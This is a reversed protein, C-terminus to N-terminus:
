LLTLEGEGIPVERGRTLQVLRILYSHNAVFGDDPSLRLRLAASASGRVDTQYLGFVQRAAIARKDHADFILCLVPGRVVAHAAVLMVTWPATDQATAAPSSSAVRPARAFSPAAGTKPKLSAIEATVARTNVAGPAICLQGRPCTPVEGTVVEELRDEVFDLSPEAGSRGDALGFGGTLLGLIVMSRVEM